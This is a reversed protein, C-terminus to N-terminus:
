YKKDYRKGGKEKRYGAEAAAKLKRDKFRMKIYPSDIDHLLFVYKLERENCKAFIDNSELGENSEFVTKGKEIKYIM